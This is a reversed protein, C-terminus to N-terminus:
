GRFAEKQTLHKLVIVCDVLNWESIRIIRSVTNEKKIQVCKSALVFIEKFLWMLMGAESMWFLDPNLSPEEVYYVPLRFLFNFGEEVVVLDCFCM